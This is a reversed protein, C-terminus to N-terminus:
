FSTLPRSWSSSLWTGATGASPSKRGPWCAPSNPPDAVAPLKRTRLTHGLVTPGVPGGAQRWYRAIFVPMISGFVLGSPVGMLILLWVPRSGTLAPYIFGFMAGFIVGNLVGASALRRKESATFSHSERKRKM